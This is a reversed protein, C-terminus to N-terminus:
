FFRSDLFDPLTRGFVVDLQFSCSVDGFIDQPNGGRSQVAGFSYGDGADSFHMDRGPITYLWDGVCFSINPIRGSTAETTPFVYGGYDSSLFAGKISSYIIHVFTDHLLMLTTGTDLIATNHLREYRQQGVKM